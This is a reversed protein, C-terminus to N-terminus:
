FGPQKSENIKLVPESDRPSVLRPKDSTAEVEFSVKASLDAVKM